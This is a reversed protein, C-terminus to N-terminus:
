WELLTSPLVSCSSHPPFMGSCHLIHHGLSCYAELVYHGVLMRTKKFSTTRPHSGTLPPHVFYTEHLKLKLLLYLTFNEFRDSKDSRFRCRGRQKNVTLHLRRLKINQENVWIIKKAKKKWRSLFKRM